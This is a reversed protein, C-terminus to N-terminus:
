LGISGLLDDLKKEEAVESVHKHAVEPPAGLLQYALQRTASESDNILKEFLDTRRGLKQAQMMHEVAWAKVKVSTHKIAQDINAKARAVVPKLNTHMIQGFESLTGPVIDVGSEVLM